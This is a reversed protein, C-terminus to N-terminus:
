SILKNVDTYSGQNEKISHAKCTATMIKISWIQETHGPANKEKKPPSNM